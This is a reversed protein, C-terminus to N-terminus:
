FELYEGNQPLILRDAFGNERAYALVDAPRLEQNEFTGMHVGIIKAWPAAKALKGLDDLGMTIHMGEGYSHGLYAVIVDPHYGIGTEIGSFWITDGTVYLTKEGRSRLVIGSSNGMTNLIHMFKGDGHRAPVRIVDIDEGFKTWPTMDITQSKKLGFNRVLDKDNLCQVYFPMDKPVLEAAAKDFHGPHMHTLLVAEVGNMIEQPSVPLDTLPGKEPYMTSPLKMSAGKARFMPDLVFKHSAYEITMTCNRIFRIKM